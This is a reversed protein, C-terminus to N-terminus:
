ANWNKPKRKNKKIFFEDLDDLLRFCRNKLLDYPHHLKDLHELWLQKGLQPSHIYQKTYMEELEDNIRFAPNSLEGVYDLMQIIREYLNEHANDDFKSTAPLRILQNLENKLNEIVEEAKNLEDVHAPLKFDHSILTDNM